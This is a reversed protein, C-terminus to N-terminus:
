KIVWGRGQLTEKLDPAPNHVTIIAQSVGLDFDRYRLTYQEESLEPLFWSIVVSPKERTRGIRDAIKISYIQFSM